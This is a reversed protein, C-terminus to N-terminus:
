AGIGFTEKTGRDKLIGTLDKIVAGLDVSEVKQLSALCQVKVKVLGNAQDVVQSTLGLKRRQHGLLGRTPGHRGSGLEQLIVFVQSRHDLVIGQQKGKLIQVKLLTILLVANLFLAIDQHRLALSQLSGLRLPALNLCLRFQLSLQQLFQTQRLFLQKRNLDLKRLRLSLKLLVPSTDLGREKVVQHGTGGLLRGLILSLLLIGTRHDNRLILAVVVEVRIRVRINMLLHQVYTM